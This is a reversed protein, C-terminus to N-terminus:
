EVRPLKHPKGQDDYSYTTVVPAAAAAPASSSSGAAGGASSSAGPHANEPPEPHSPREPAKPRVSLPCMKGGQCCKKHRKQEQFADCFTSDSSSAFGMAFIITWGFRWYFTGKDIRFEGKVMSSSRCSLGSMRRSMRLCWGAAQVDAQSSRSSPSLKPKGIFARGEEHHGSTYRDQRDLFPTPYGKATGNRCSLNPSVSWRCARVLYVSNWTWHM